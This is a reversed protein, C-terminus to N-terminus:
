RSSGKKQTGGFNDRTGTAESGNGQHAYTGGLAGMVGSEHAAQAVQPPTGYTHIFSSDLRCCQLKEFIVRSPISVQPQNQATGKSVHRPDKSPTASRAPSAYGHLLRLLLASRRHSTCALTQSTSPVPMCNTSSGSTSRPM